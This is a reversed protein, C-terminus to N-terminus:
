VVLVAAGQVRSGRLDELAVNAQVLPYTTVQTHVPV